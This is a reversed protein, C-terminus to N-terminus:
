TDGVIRAAASAAPRGSGRTTTHRGTQTVSSDSRASAFPQTSDDAAVAADRRILCHEFSLTDGVCDINAIMPLASSTPAARVPKGARPAVSTAAIGRPFGSSTPAVQSRILAIAFAQAPRVSGRCETAAAGSSGIRVRVGVRCAVRCTAGNKATLCRFGAKRECNGVSWSVEPAPRPQYDGTAPGSTSRTSAEFWGSPARCRRACAARLRMRQVPATLMRHQDTPTSSGDQTPGVFGLAVHPQRAAAM